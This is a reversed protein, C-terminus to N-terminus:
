DQLSRDFWISSVEQAQMAEQHNFLSLFAALRQLKTLEIVETKPTSVPNEPDLESAPSFTHWTEQDSFEHTWELILPVRTVKWTSVVWCDFGPHWGHYIGSPCHLAQQKISEHKEADLEIYYVSGIGLETCLKTLKRKCLQEPTMKKFRWHYWYGSALAVITVIALLLLEHGQHECM